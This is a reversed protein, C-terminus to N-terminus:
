RSEHKRTLGRRNRQSTGDAFGMLNLLLFFPCEAAAFSVRTALMPCPVADVVNLLLDEEVFLFIWWSFASASFV